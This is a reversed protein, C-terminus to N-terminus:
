GDYNEGGLIEFAQQVLYKKDLYARQGSNFHDELADYRTILQELDFSSLVANIKQIEVRNELAKFLDSSLPDQGKARREIWNFLIKELLVCFIFFQQQKNKLNLTDALAFIRGRDLGSKPDFCDFIDDIVDLGGEDFFSQAVGFCGESLAYILGSEESSINSIEKLQNFDNMTLPSFDFVRLRSRITPLFVGMKHAVLIILTKAPPEELIKLLANQANLNMTDADDILCIRWGGMAATSRFFGPIKRTDDILLNNKIQGTTENIEREIVLLDPHGGSAVKRFADSDAPIDFSEAALDDGGGFLGDSAQSQDHLLFKALRFAFSAKGIGKPGNLAIAHPMKDQNYLNLLTNEIQKHGLCITSARPEALGETSGGDELDEIFSSPATEDNSDEELGLEEFM